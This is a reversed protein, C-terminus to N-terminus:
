NCKHKWIFGGASKRKSLCCEGIHSRNIKLCRQAEAASKWEKIFNGKRDYQIIVKSNAESIKQKMEESCPIGLNPSIRGMSSKSIREKTEDSCPVGKNWAIKGTLVVSLKAKTEDSCPIGKNWSVKGKNAKSIKQKIEDNMHKVGIGGLAKNTLDFGWTRMQSIWYIEIEEWNNENCYDIFEINPELNEKLLSRVWNINHFSKDKKYKADRIHYEKRKEISLSTAGVYRIENPTLPNSLTYITWNENM